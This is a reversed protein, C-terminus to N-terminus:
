ILPMEIKIGTVEKRKGKEIKKNQEKIKRRKMEKTKKKRKKKKGTDRKNELLKKSPSGIRFQDNLIGNRSNYVSSWPCLQSLVICVKFFM